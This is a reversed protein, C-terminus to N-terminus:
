LAGLAFLFVAVALILHLWAVIRIQTEFGVEITSTMLYVQRLAVGAFGIYIGFAFLFFTKIALSVLPSAQDITIM